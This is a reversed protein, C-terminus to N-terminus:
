AGGGAFAGRRRKWWQFYLASAAVGLLLGSLLGWRLSSLAPGSPMSPTEMEDENIDCIQDHLEGTPDTIAVWSVGTSCVLHATSTCSGGSDAIDCVMIEGPQKSTVHGTFNSPDGTGNGTVTVGDPTTGSFVFRDPAM